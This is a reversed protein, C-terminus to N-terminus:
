PAWRDGAVRAKTSSAASRRPARPRSSSSRGGRRRAGWVPSYAPGRVHRIHGDGLLLIELREEPQLLRAERHGAGVYRAGHLERRRRHVLHDAAELAVAVDRARAVLRDAEGVLADRVGLADDAAVPQDLAEEGVDEADRPV